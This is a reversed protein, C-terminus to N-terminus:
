LDLRIKEILLHKKVKSVMDAMEAERKELGALDLASAEVVPKIKALNNKMQMLAEENAKKTAEDLNEEALSNELKVVFYEVYAIMDWPNNPANWVFEINCKRCRYKNSKWGQESKDTGTLKLNANKECKPCHANDKVLNKLQEREGLIIERNQAHVNMQEVLKDCTELMIKYEALLADGPNLRETHKKFFSVLKILEREEANFNQDM